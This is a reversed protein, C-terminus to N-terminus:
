ELFSPAAENIFGYFIVLPFGLIFKNNVADIKLTHEPNYAVSSSFFSAALKISSSTSPDRSSLANLVYILENPISPIYILLIYSSILSPITNSFTYSFTYGPIVYFFFISHFGFLLNLFNILVLIATSSPFYIPNENTPIPPISIVSPFLFNDNASM